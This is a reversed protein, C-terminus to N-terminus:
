GRDAGEPAAPDPSTGHVDARYAAVSALVAFAAVHCPRCPHATDHTCIARAGACQDLNTVDFAITQALAASTEPV